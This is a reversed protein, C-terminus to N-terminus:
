VFPSFPALLAYPVLEHSGCKRGWNEERQRCLDRRWKGRWEWRGRLDLGVDGFDYGHQSFEPSLPFCCLSGNWPSNQAREFRLEAEPKSKGRLRELNAAPPPPSKQPQKQKQTKLTDCSSNPGSSRRCGRLVRCPTSKNELMCSLHWGAM